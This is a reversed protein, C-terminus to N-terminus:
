RLEALDNIPIFLSTKVVRLHRASCLTFSTALRVVRQPSLDLIVSGRDDAAPAETKTSVGRNANAASRERHCGGSARQPALPRISVRVAFASAHRRNKGNMESGTLENRLSLINAFWM